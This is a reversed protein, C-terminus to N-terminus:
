SLLTLLWLLLVGFVSLMFNNVAHILLVHWINKTWLYVLNLFLGAAMFSVTQVINGDFNNYHILGFIVANLIVILIKWILNPTFLKSLLTYRFVIDEILATFVPGFSILFLLFGDNKFDPSAGSDSGEGSNPLFSRVLSIVVQLLIAGAFVILWSQWKSRNFFKWHHQLMGYYVVCILMFLFGRFLMDALGLSIKELGFFKQFVYGNIFIGPIFLLALYDRREFHIRKPFDEANTDSIRQLFTSVIKIM